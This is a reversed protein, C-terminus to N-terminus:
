NICNNNVSNIVPTGPSISTKVQAAFAGTSTNILSQTIEAFLKSYKPQAGSSLFFDLGHIEVIEKEAAALSAATINQAEVTSISKGNSIVNYLIGIELSFEIFKDGFINSHIGIKYNDIGVAQWNNTVHGFKLAYPKVFEFLPTQKSEEPSISGGEYNSSPEEYHSGPATTSSCTTFLYEWETSGDSYTTVWYYETCGSTSFENKALRKPKISINLNQYLGNKYFKASLKLYNIDYTFLAGSFKSNNKGSIINLVDRSDSSYPNEM